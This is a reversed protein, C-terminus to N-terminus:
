SFISLIFAFVRQVGCSLMLLFLSISFLITTFKFNFYYLEVSDSIFFSLLKYWLSYSPGWDRPISHFMMTGRAMYLSEDWFLLDMYRELNYTVKIGCIIILLIGVGIFTNWQLYNKERYNKLKQWVLLQKYM